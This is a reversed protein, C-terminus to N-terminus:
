LEILDLKFRKGKCLEARIIAKFDEVAENFDKNVIVYDYISYDRLENIANNLRISIQYDSDTGRKKLRNRLEDISPPVIFVFVTNKLKGKLQKAGQVDVDFIPIRELNKIRDVEKKTTGYYHLHVVAWEIFENEVIMDKFKEESVFYYSGDKTEGPRKARTTTSIVFVYRDDNSIARNIISTKGTGSPASVVIAIRNPM